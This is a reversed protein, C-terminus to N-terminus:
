RMVEISLGCHKHQCVDSEVKTPLWQSSGLPPESLPGQHGPRIESLGSCGDSWVFPHEWTLWYWACYGCIIALVLAGIIRAAPRFVQRLRNLKQRYHGDSASGVVFFTGEIVESYDPKGRPPSHAAQAYQQRASVSAQLLRGLHGYLRAERRRRFEEIRQKHKDSYQFQNM